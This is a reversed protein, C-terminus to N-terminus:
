ARRMEGEKFVVFMQKEGTTGFEGIIAAIGAAADINNIDVCSLFSIGKDGFIRKELTIKELRDGDSTPTFSVYVYSAVKSITAGAPIM